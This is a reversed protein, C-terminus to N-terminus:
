SKNPVRVPSSNFTIYHGNNSNMTDGNSDGVDRHSYVLDPNAPTQAPYKPVLKETSASPFM